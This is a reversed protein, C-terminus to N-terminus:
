TEVWTKYIEWDYLDMTTYGAKLDHVRKNVGYVDPSRFFILFQAAESVLEQLEWVTKKLEEDPLVQTSKDLLEHFRPDEYGTCVYDCRPNLADQHDSAFAPHGMKYGSMYFDFEWRPKMLVKDDQGYVFFEAQVGVDAWYGNIADYLAPDAPVAQVAWQLKRNPDWGGEKLLEKAKKPDYPYRKMNPSIGFRPPAEYLTDIVQGAGANITQNIAERDLAYLLAQRNRKDSLLPRRTNIPTGTVAPNDQNMRFYLHAMKKFRELETPPIRCCDIEQKELAAAMTQADAFSRYILKDLLPKGRHYKEYPAFVIYQDPVYEVVKYPGTGVFKATTAWESQLIDKAKDRNLYDMLLHKPAM